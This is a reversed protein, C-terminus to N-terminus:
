SDDHHNACISISKQWCISEKVISIVFANSIRFEGKPDSHHSHLSRLTQLSPWDVVADAGLELPTQPSSSQVRRYSMPTAPTKRSHATDSSNSAGKELTKKATSFHRLKCYERARRWVEHFTQFIFESTVCSVLPEDLVHQSYKSGTGCKAWLGGAYSIPHGVHPQRWM